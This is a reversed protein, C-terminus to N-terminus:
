DIVFTVKATVRFTIVKGEEAVLAQINEVNVHKVHRLTEHAKLAASQIAEEITKGESIVEIVKAISMQDEPNFIDAIQANEGFFSPFIANSQRKLYSSLANRDFLYQCYLSKPCFSRCM